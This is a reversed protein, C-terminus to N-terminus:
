IALLGAPWAPRRKLVAPRGVPWGLMCAPRGAPSVLHLFSSSSTGLVGRASSVSAFLLFQRDENDNVVVVVVVTMKNHEIDKMMDMNNVMMM